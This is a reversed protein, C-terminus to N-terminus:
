RPKADIAKQLREAYTLLVAGIARSHYDTATWGGTPESQPCLREGRAFMEAVITRIDKERM